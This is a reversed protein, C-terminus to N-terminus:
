GHHAGAPGKPPESLLVSPGSSAGKLGDKTANTTPVSTVVEKLYAGKSHQEGLYPPDLKRECEAQVSVAMGVDDEENVKGAGRGGGIDSIHAEM